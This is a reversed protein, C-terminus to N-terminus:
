SQELAKEEVGEALCGSCWNVDGLNQEEKGSLGYSPGIPEDFENLGECWPGGFMDFIHVQDDEGFQITAKQWVEHDTKTVTM